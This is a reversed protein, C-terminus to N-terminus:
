FRGSFGLSGGGGPTVSGTPMVPFKKHHMWPVMFGALSGVFSGLIVDTPFHNGAEVRAFATLGSLLVGAGLVVWRMPSDPHRLWVTTTLATTAAGVMMAHGSPFSLEADFSTLPEDLETYRVPRPRRVAFKLVMQLAGTVAMAESVILMDGLFDGWPTTTPLVISELGLYLIPIGISSFLAVDSFVDWARSDRGVAYRDFASLDAPNCRGNGVPRRCSVDGELTPKILFDVFAFLAFSAGTITAELPIEVDYVSLHPEAVVVNGVGPKLEPALVPAMDDIARPAVTPITGGDPTVPIVQQETEQQSGEPTAALLVPLAVVLATMM